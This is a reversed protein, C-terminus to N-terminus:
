KKFYLKLIKIAEATVNKKSLNGDIIEVKALNNKKIYDLVIKYNNYVHALKDLNDYIEKNNNRENIRQIAVEPSLDIYIILEPLIKPSINITFEPYESYVIGSIISRNSIFIKNSNNYKSIYDMHDRRNIAWLLELQEIGYQTNLSLPISKNFINIIANYNLKNFNEWKDTNKMDATFGNFPERSFDINYKKNDIITNKLNNILCDKGCGDLGEIAIYNSLPKFKTLDINLIEKNSKNYETKFINFLYAFNLDYKISKEYEEKPSINISKDINSNDIVSKADNLSNFIYRIDDLSLKYNHKIKKAKDINYFYQYNNNINKTKGKIKFNDIKSIKFTEFIHCASNALSTDKIQTLPIWKTLEIINYLSLIM